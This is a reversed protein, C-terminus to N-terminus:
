TGTDDVNAASLLRRFRHVAQGRTLGLKSAIQSWSYESHLIVETAVDEWEHPCDAGLRMLATAARKRNRSSTELSRQENAEELANVSRGASHEAAM